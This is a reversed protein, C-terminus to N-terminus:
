HLKWFKATLLLYYNYCVTTLASQIIDSFDSRLFSRRKEVFVVCETGLLQVGTQDPGPWPSGALVWLNLNMWLKTM